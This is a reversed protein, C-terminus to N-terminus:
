VFVFDSADLTFAANAHVIIASGSGNFGKVIVDTTGNGTFTLGAFSTELIPAISIHDLGDQWDTITDSGFTLDTFRFADADAGGTLYDSGLGGNLTDAGAGGDITNSQYNGTIVDTFGSGNVNEFFALTDGNATGGSVQAAVSLNITVGADSRKYHVTDIGAGGNLSDAGAGGDIFDNGGEGRISDNGGSGFIRNVIDNGILIDRQLSSGELNEIFFLLDGAAEGGSYTNTLLNVSVNTGTSNAYSATDIGAGGNVTDGGAGGEIFDDGGNGVLSDIGGFGFLNNGDDDGILIDRQLLSGFLSQINDLTDGQAHGGSATDLLLNVSVNTGTSTRYDAINSGTGGDISDDGAGGSIIDNGGMGYLEDTGLGGVIFNNGATGRIVENIIQEVAGIDLVITHRPGGRGDLPILEAVNGDGDIDVVDPQLLNSNSAGILVSGDLMSRTMVAGGNDLLEGLNLQADSQSLLNGGLSTIVNAVNTGFASNAVQTQAVPIGPLHLDNLTNSTGLLNGAIVSSLITLTEGAQDFKFIGGGSGLADGDSNAQNGTITSSLVTMNGDIYVGGGSISAFNNVVTSNILFNNLGHVYLGGGSQATNGVFLSNEVTTTGDRSYLGGGLGQSVSNSITSNMVLLNGQTKSIAGGSGNGSNGHDLTLSLLEVDTAVGNITLIRTTNGGSLTIDAKNDNNIDGDLTIDSSLVIDSALTITQGALNIAFTITNHFADANASAVAARLSGAGSDNTNTVVLQSEVAGIDVRNGAIRVHGDADTALGAAAVNNGADILVSATGLFHTDVTGGHDTPTASIAVQSFTLSFLNFGSSSVDAATYFASNVSQIQTSVGSNVDNLAQNNSNLIGIHNNGLVTNVINLTEGAQGFKHIGGGTGTSNGDSDARNGLLTCNTVTANGDIYIGGGSYTVANVDITTNSISTAGGNAYIGGGNQATNLVFLSTSITTTTGMVVLGGGNHAGGNQSFKTDQIDLTGGLAQMAGGNGGAANGHSLTLSQVHVDTGAGSQNFIRSANNGSIIVDARNDGDTDGDITVDNTLALEGSTLTVTGVVAFSIVDADANANALTVAARLSGAGSDNLNTVVFNTM